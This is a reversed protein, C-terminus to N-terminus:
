REEEVKGVVSDKTLLAIRRHIQQLRTMDPTQVRDGQKNPNLLRDLAM